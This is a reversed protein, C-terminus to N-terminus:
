EDDLRRVLGLEEQQDTDLYAIDKSSIGKIEASLFVAPAFDGCELSDEILRMVYKAREGPVAIYIVLKVTAM